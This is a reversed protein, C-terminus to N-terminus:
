DLTFWEEEEFDYFRPKEFGAQFYLFGSSNSDFFYPYTAKSTWLWGREPLYFWDPTYPTANTDGSLEVQQRIQEYENRSVLGHASLDNFISNRADEEGLGKLYQVLEFDSETPNSGFEIEMSDPLGDEDSDDTDPCTKYQIMELYDSIGDNDSDLDDPVSLKAVEHHLDDWDLTDPLIELFYVFEDKFAEVTEYSSYWYRDGNVGFPSNSGNQAPPVERMATFIEGDQADMVVSEGTFYTKEADYILGGFLSNMTLKQKDFEVLDAIEEALEYPDITKPVSQLFEPNNIEFSLLTEYTSSWYTRSNPGDPSYTEDEEHVGAPVDIKSTFIEALEFDLLVASGQPYSKLPDYHLNTLLDFFDDDEDEPFLNVQEEFAEYLAEKTTDPLSDLFDPSSEELGDVVEEFDEWYQNGNLGIPSFADDNWPEAEHVEEKAVFLQGHALSIIAFEGPRYFRHPSYVLDKFDFWHFSLLGWEHTEFNYFESGYVEIWGTSPNYVFPHTEESAWNWSPILDSDENFKYFWFYEDSETNALYIWGYSSHFAWNGKELRLGFWDLRTEFPNEVVTKLDHVLEGVLSSLADPETALAHELDAEASLFPTSSSLSTTTETSTNWYNSGNASDPPIGTVDQTATYIESDNPSLIVADGASYSKSSDYLLQSWFDQGTLSCSLFLTGILAFVPKKTM